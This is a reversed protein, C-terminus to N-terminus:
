SGRVQWGFAKATAAFEKFARHRRIREASNLEVGSLYHTERTVEETAETEM